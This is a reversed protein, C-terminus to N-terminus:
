NKLEFMADNSELGAVKLVAHYFGAKPTPLTASCSSDSRIRPWSVTASITDDPSMVANRPKLLNSGPCDGSSWIRDSGSTILLSGAGDEITLVCPTFGTHVFKVDFQPISNKKFTYPTPTIEVSVDIPKCAATVTPDTAATTVTPTVTADPAAAPTTDTPKPDGGSFLPRVLYFLVLVALVLLSIAVVRRRWYIEPPLEGVPRTVGQM